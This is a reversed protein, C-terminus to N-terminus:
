SQTVVLLDQFLTDLMVPVRMYFHILILNTTSAWPRWLIDHSKGPTHHPAHLDNTWYVRLRRHSAGAGTIKDHAVCNGFGEIKCWNHVCTHWNYMLICDMLSHPRWGLPFIVVDMLAAEGLRSGSSRGPMWSTWRRVLRVRWRRGWHAEQERSLVIM